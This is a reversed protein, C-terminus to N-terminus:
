CFRSWFYSCYYAIYATFSVPYFLYPYTRASVCRFLLCFQALLNVKNTTTPAHTTHKAFPLLLFPDLASLHFVIHHLFFLYNPWPTVKGKAVCPNYHLIAITNPFSFLCSVNWSFSDNNLSNNFMCHMYACPFFIYDCWLLSVLCVLKSILTGCRHFANRGYVQVDCM